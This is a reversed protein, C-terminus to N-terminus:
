LVISIRPGVVLAIDRGGGIWAVGAQVFPELAVHRYLLVAVPIEITARHVFVADADGPQDLWFGDYAVMPIVAVRRGLPVATGVSVGARAAFAGASAIATFSFAAGLRGEIAIRRTHLRVGGALGLTGSTIPLPALEGATFISLSHDAYSGAHPPVEDAASIRTVCVLAAVLSM